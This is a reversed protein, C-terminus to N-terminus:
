ESIPLVDHEPADWTLHHGELIVLNDKSIIDAASHYGLLESVEENTQKALLLVENSPFNTLGRAVEDGTEDYVHLVDGKNYEGQVSLLDDAQIGTKGSRIRKAAEANVVLSGAMNLRDALWVRWSSQPDGIAICRTHRREKKLISSIPRELIGSAIYATSGANQAMNAAQMKTLMGGSGLTSKSKTAELYVSVDEVEEVFQAGPEAPDRDYLGEVGTLMVFDPARVMQAVKAALRDNDGVRIEETTISDNENVIPLIGYTLLRDITNKTNIFRRRNETDESTLLVQAIDLGFEIAIQKYANIILPQGCAAAAQKDAVGASEPRLGLTGLGIAASGSSVLVVEYGEARLSAIDALLGHMFAYRLTLDDQNVLLASGVKVVIRKQEDM